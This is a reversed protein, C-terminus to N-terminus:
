AGVGIILSVCTTASGGLNFTAMNEAHPLQYGGARGSVQLACDLAMRVGTAGVPHGLGILGGSPNIPFSGDRTIRGDEVAKWSEGPATLGSHDIAMYETVSFCDHTELADLDTIQAFGARRLADEMMTQVHPFLLPMGASLQLKRELLIPASRHGWGKIRPIDALKLGRKAAHERAARESALIVCAAGDTIQGCDMKRVRGEIVPNLEDDDSFCGPPFQWARTQANPNSKANGFNIEAIRALHEGRIGHRQQYERTIRDFMHPWPYDCDTAEHGQWAAAGLYEAGTKGNVNRMFELGLVCAIDYHGAEIDRMASLMAISGSACAAEHRSTPIAALEPHLQGFFGNILGQGTFLEGVFNGVHGVEIQAPEIGADAIAGDLAEAFMDYIELGERAWNRSFDTQTGGLIYVHNM